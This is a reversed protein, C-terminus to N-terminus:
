NFNVKTMGNNSKFKQYLLQGKSRMSSPLTIALNDELDEKPDQFPEVPVMLDPFPGM